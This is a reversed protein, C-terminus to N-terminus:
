YRYRPEIMGLVVKHGEGAYKLANGILNSFVQHFADPDASVMADSSNVLLLEVDRSRSIGSFSQLADKLLEASSTPQIVFRQEGSEVRALTLLDETLRSMRLTNKRIIELFDRSRDGNKVSDLLTETYGQVSTLPTRLELSVNAIFDR